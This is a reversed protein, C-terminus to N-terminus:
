KAEPAKKTSIGLLMYIPCISVFGTVLFIAALVGLLIATLGTLTGSLMLAAVVVAALIRIVRDITGVNKKM